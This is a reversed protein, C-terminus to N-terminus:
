GDLEVKLALLRTTVWDGARGVWVERGTEEAEVVYEVLVVVM